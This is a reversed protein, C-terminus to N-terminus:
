SRENLATLAIKTMATCGYVIAEDNFDFYPSHLAHTQQTEVGTGLFFYAGNCRELIFAFDEGGMSPLVDQALAQEGFTETIVRAVKEAEDPTNITAPYKRDYDVKITASFAQAIGDCVRHISAEIKDRQEPTLTRTTGHIRANEPIVTFANLDGSEMACLSLVVSDQPAFERSVISHLSSILEGAVRIPDVTLHPSVGGHGGKGIIEIIVKDTAAMIPGNRVGFQGLPLYPWNHLAYVENMPFRELLGDEIMALGGAGGEEAPQFILYVTGAFQDRHTQLYRAVGLLIVTHGDHGCAHMCGEIESVHDHESMEILPLADMDARLGIRKGNDPLLGTIEGVIGTKGIGNQFTIELASLHKEILEATSTECYALEPFRHLHHRISVLEDAIAEFYSKM